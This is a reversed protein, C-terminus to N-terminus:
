DHGGGSGGLAGDIVVLKVAAGGAAGVSLAVAGSLHAANEALAGLGDGGVDGGDALLLEGGLAVAGRDAHLGGAAGGGGGDLGLGEALAALGNAGGAGLRHELLLGAGDRHRLHVDESGGLGDLRALHAGSLLVGVGERLIADAVLALEALHEDGLAGGLGSLGDGEADGLVSLSLPLGGVRGVIHGVAKLGGGGAGAAGAARAGGAAGVVVAGDAALADGGLGVRVDEGLRGGLAGDGAAGRGIAAVLVAALSERRHVIFARLGLDALLAGVVLADNVGRGLRHLADERNNLFLIPVGVVAEGGGESTLARDSGGGADAALTVLDLGDSDLLTLHHGGEGIVDSAVGGGGSLEVAVAGLLDERLLVGDAGGEGAVARQGGALASVVGAAGVM